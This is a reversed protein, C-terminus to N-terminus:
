QFNGVPEGIDLLTAELEDDVNQGDGIGNDNQFWEPLSSVMRGRAAMAADRRSRTKRQLPRQLHVKFDKLTGDVDRSLLKQVQKNEVESNELSSRQRSVISPLARARKETGDFISCSM